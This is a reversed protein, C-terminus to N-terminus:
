RTRGAVDFRVIINRGELVSKDLRTRASEAAGIDAFVVLGWGKSRGNPSKQVNASVPAVGGEVCFHEFLADDTSNWSVNNVYLTESAPVPADSGEASTASSGAGSLRVPSSSKGANTPKRQRESPPRDERVELVRGNFQAGHKSRVAAAAHEPDSFRLIGFGRSKGSSATAVRADTPSFAEFETTLDADECSWNLNGVFVLCGPAGDLPTRDLRVSLQRDHFDQLGLQHCAFSAQEPTAFRVLAWGKARGTDEHTQVTASIVQGASSMYEVLDESTTSWAINGVFCVCPDGRTAEAGKQPLLKLSAM